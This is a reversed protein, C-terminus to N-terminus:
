EKIKIKAIKDLVDKCEDIDIYNLCSYDKSLIQLIDSSRDQSNLDVVYINDICDEKGYIIRFLFSRIFGEIKDESNKVGIFMYIGSGKKPYYYIHLLTKIIEFLGYLALTWLIANFIFNLM